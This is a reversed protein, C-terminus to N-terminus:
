YDKSLTVAGLEKDLAKRFLSPGVWTYVVIGLWALQIVPVLPANATGEMLITAARYTAYAAVLVLISRKEGLAGIWVSYRWWLGLLPSQRAKIHAFLALAGHGGDGSRLASVAHDRALEIEGRRLHVHGMVVLGDGLEPDLALADRAHREAGPLDNDDLLHKALAAHPEPDDPALELARLIAGRAEARKGLLDHLRALGLHTASEEPASALAADLHRRAEDLKRRAVAVAAATRLSVADEPDLALAQQAEVEAAAVRGQDLLCASLLTHALAHEPDVSLVRRLSDIAASLNGARIQQRVLM